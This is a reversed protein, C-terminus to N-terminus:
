VAKRVKIIGDRADQREIEESIAKHVAITSAAVEDSVAEGCHVCAGDKFAPFRDFMPHRESRDCFHVEM